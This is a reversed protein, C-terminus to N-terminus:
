RLRPPDGRVSRCTAPSRARTGCSAARVRGTSLRDAGTEATERLAERNMWALTLVRRQGADQAIVPVLGDANWRLEDWEGLSDHLDSVAAGRHGRSHM